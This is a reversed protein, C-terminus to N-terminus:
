IELSGKAPDDFRSTSGGGLGAAAEGGPEVMWSEGSNVLIRWVEDM